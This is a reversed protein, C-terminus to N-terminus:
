LAYGMDSWRQMVEGRTDERRTDERRTEDGGDFAGQREHNLLFDWMQMAMSRFLCCFSQYSCCCGLDAWFVVRADDPPESSVRGGRRPGLREEGSCRGRAFVKCYPSNDLCREVHGDKVLEARRRCAVRRRVKRCCRRSVEDGRRLGWAGM